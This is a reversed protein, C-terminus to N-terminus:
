NYFFKLSKIVSIPFPKILHILVVSLLVGGCLYIPIYYMFYMAPASLFVLAAHLLLLYCVIALVWVRKIVLVILLILLLVIIPIVSWVFKGVISVRNSSDLMLLFHSMSYKLDINLPYSNINSQYFNQTVASNLTSNKYEITKGGHPFSTYSLLSMFTPNFTNSDLSNTALFTKTRASLFIGPNDKVVSLYATYFGSLHNQYDPRVVGSWYSPVEAYSPMSRLLSIDLVKDIKELNTDLSDGSLPSQLMTSLPNIVATLSYQKNSYHNTLGYVGLLMLLAICIYAYGWVRRKLIAQIVGFRYAVLPLLIIYIIGETRWFCVLAILAASLIFLGKNARTKKDIYSDIILVFLALLLYSYLTLRLPYFDNILLVPSLFFACVILILWRNQIYKRVVSLTYGIVISIVLIQIFVISAATPYIYLCLTYYINTIISQWSDPEYHKVQDLVNFEDWVWHGPYMVVFLIGLILFCLASYFFWRRVFPILYKKHSVFYFICRIFLFAVIFFMIKVLGIYGDHQSGVPVSFAVSESIPIALFVYLSAFLISLFTQSLLIKKLM